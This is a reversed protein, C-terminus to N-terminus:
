SNLIMYVRLHQQSAKSIDCQPCDRWDEKNDKREYIVADIFSLLAINKVTSIEVGCGLSLFLVCTVELLIVRQHPPLYSYYMECTPVSCDFSKVPAM